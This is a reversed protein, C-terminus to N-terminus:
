LSVKLSWDFNKLCSNALNYSKLFFYEQIDNKRTVMVKAITDRLKSDGNELKRLFQFRFLNLM